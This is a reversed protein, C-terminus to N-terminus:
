SLDLALMATSRQGSDAPLYCEIVDPM